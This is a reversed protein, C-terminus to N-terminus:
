KRTQPKRWEPLIAADLKLPKLAAKIAKIANNKSDKPLKVSLVTERVHGAAEESRGLIESTEHSSITPMGDDQTKGEDDKYDFYAHEIARRADINYMGPGWVVISVNEVAVSHGENLIEGVYDFANM